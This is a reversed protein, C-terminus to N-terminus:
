SFVVTDYDLFGVNVSVQVDKKSAVGFGTWWTVSKGDLVPNTPMDLGQQFVQDGEEGGASMGVITGIPEFTSGSRNRFTCKVKLFVKRGEGGAAFQSRKFTVPQACTLKSGDDFAVTDGFRPNSTDRPADSEQASPEASPDGGSSPSAAASTDPEPRPRAM